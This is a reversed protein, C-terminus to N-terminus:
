IYTFKLSLTQASKFSNVWLYAGGFHVTDELFCVSCSLMQNLVWHVLPVLLFEWTRDWCFFSHTYTIFYSTTFPVSTFTINLSCIIFNLSFFYQFLFLKPIRFFFFCNYLTSLKETLYGQKNILELHVVKVADGIQESLIITCCSQPILNINGM